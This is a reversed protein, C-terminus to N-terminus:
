WHARSFILVIHKHKGTKDSLKFDKGDIGTMVFDPALKGVEAREANQAGCITMSAMFALALYAYRNM